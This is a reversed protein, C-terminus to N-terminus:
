RSTPATRGCCIPIRLPGGFAAMGKWHSYAPMPTEQGTLSFPRADLASHGAILGLSGNYAARLTSRHNGFAASQGFQSAAGNNVSGTILLDAAM